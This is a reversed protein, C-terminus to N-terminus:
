ATPGGPDSDLGGADIAPTPSGSDGGKIPEAFRLHCNAFFPFLIVGGPFDGSEEL